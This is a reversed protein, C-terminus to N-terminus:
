NVDNMTIILIPYFIKRVQEITLGEAEFVGIFLINCGQTKMQRLVAPYNHSLVPKIEINLYVSWKVDIGNEEFEIESEMIKKWDEDGFQYQEWKDSDSDKREFCFRSAYNNKLHTVFQYLFKGDLFLAQMKNHEPTESPERFNNIILTNINQYRARFWDQGQLWELYPRDNMLVDVPQGKYKGFPIIENSM